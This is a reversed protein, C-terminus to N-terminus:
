QIKAIIHGFIDDIEISVRKVDIFRLVLFEDLTNLSFLM